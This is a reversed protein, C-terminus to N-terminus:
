RSADNFSMIAMPIMFSCFYRIMFNRFLSACKKNTLENSPRKFLAVDTTKLTFCFTNTLSAFFLTISQFGVLLILLLYVYGHMHLCLTVVDQGYIAEMLEKKDSTSGFEFLGQILFNGYQDRWLRDFSSLATALALSREESTGLRLRKQIFRSSAEDFCAVDALCGLLSFRHQPLYCLILFVLSCM